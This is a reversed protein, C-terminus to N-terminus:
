TRSVRLKQGTHLIAVYDGGFWAQVERIRDLNVVASRHIRIFRAPDLRPLLAKLTTRILHRERGAHVRVHNGETEIWDVEDLPVFRRLVALVAGLNLAIGEMGARVLDARTHRLDLGAFSGRINPSSEQTGGGALSPNFLLKNAGPPSTAALEAMAEYSAGGLVNDRIWRFSNGGSFISVASTFLEPV